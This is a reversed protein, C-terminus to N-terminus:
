VNKTQQKSYICKKVPEKCRYTVMPSCKVLLTYTSIYWGLFDKKLSNLNNAWSWHSRYINCKHSLSVIKNSVTKFHIKRLSKSLSSFSIKIFTGGKRWNIYRLLLTHYISDLYSYCVRSLQFIIGFYNILTMNM